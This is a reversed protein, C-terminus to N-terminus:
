HLIAGYGGVAFIDGPGSGWVGLLSNGQPLPNQWQWQALAPPAGGAWAAALLLVAVVNQRARVAQWTRMANM